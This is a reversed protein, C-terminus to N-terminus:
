VEIETNTANALTLVLEEITMKVKTLNNETMGKGIGNEFAEILSSLKLNREKM